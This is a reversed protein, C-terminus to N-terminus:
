EAAPPRQFISVFDALIARSLSSRGELQNTPDKVDILAKELLLRLAGEMASLATAGPLTLRECLTRVLRAEPAGFDCSLTASGEAVIEGAENVYGDAELHLGFGLTGCPEPTIDRFSMSGDPNAEFTRGDGTKFEDAGALYADAYGHANVMARAEFAASYYRNQKRPPSLGPGGQDFHWDSGLPGFGPYKPARTCAIDVIKAGPLGGRPQFAGAEFTVPLAPNFPLTQFRVFPLTM